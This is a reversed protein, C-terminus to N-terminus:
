PVAAGAPVPQIDAINQRGNKAKWVVMVVKGTLADAGGRKELEEAADKCNAPLGLACVVLKRQLVENMRHANDLGPDGGTGDPYTNISVDKFFGPLLEEGDV